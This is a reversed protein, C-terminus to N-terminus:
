SDFLDGDEPILAMYPVRKTETEPIITKGIPKLIGVRNNAPYNVLSAVPYANLKANGHDSLLDMVRSVSIGEKLWHKYNDPSLVVPQRHHLKELEPLAPMTIISFTEVIEGTEKNTWQDWVGAMGFYKQQRHYIVHPVKTGDEQKQWEFYCNVPVICRQTQLPKRYAGSTMINEIRANITKYKSVAAKSFFPVLGWIFYQLTQPKKNTIVPLPVPNNANSPTVNYISEFPLELQIDFAIEVEEENYLITYRGCM